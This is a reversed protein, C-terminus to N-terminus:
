DLLRMRSCTEPPPGYSNLFHPGESLYAVRLRSTVAAVASKHAFPGWMLHSRHLDCGVVKDQRNQRLDDMRDIETDM